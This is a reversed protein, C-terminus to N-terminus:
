SQLSNLPLCPIQKQSYLIHPHILLYFKEEYKFEKFWLFIKIIALLVLYTFIAGYAACAAASGIIKSLPGYPPWPPKLDGWAVWVRLFIKYTVYRWTPFLLYNDLIMRVFYHAQDAHIRICGSLVFFIENIAAMSVRRSQRLKRQSRQCLVYCRCIDNGYVALFCSYPLCITTQTLFLLYYIGLWLLLKLWLLLEWSFKIITKLINFEFQVM